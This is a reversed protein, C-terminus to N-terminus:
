SPPRASFPEWESCVAPARDLLPLLEVLPPHLDVLMLLFPLSSLPGAASPPDMRKLWSLGCRELLSRRGELAFDNDSRKWPCRPRCSPSREGTLFFDNSYHFRGWKFLRPLFLIPLPRRGRSPGTGRDPAHQPSSRVSKLTRCSSIVLDDRTRGVSPLREIPFPSPPPARYTRVALSPRL